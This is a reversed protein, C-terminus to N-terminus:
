DRPIHFPVEGSPASAEREPREEREGARPEREPKESNQKEIAM